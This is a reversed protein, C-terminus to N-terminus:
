WGKNDGFDGLKAEEEVRIDRAILEKREKPPLTAYYDKDHQEMAEEFRRSAEPTIVVGFLGVRGVGEVGGM